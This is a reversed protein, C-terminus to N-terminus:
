WQRNGENMACYIKTAWWWRSGRKEIEILKADALEEIIDFHAALEEGFPYWQEELLTVTNFNVRVRDLIKKEDSLTLVPFFLRGHPSLFNPTQSLIDLIWRTGDKGAESPISAPYWKSIRAIPEAMGAVDEVILDFKMGLWPEFLNGARCDINLSHSAANRRALQVANESIDSAYVLGTPAVFKALALAVIGCGCGLDLVSRPPVNVMRRVARLLLVTTSTPCFVNSTTAVVIGERDGLSRDKYEFTTPVITVM